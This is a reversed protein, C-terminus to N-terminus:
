TQRSQRPGVTLSVIERGGQPPSARAMRTCLEAEASFPPRRGVSCESQFTMAIPGSLITSFATVRVM